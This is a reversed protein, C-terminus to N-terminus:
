REQSRCCWMQLSYYHHLLSLMYNIDERVPLINDKGFPVYATGLYKDSSSPTIYDGSAVTWNSTTWLELELVNDFMYRLIHAILM